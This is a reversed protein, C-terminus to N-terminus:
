IIGHELAFRVMEVSSSIGLKNFINTKHSNVARLSIHFEEAIEKGLKGACCAEIIQVERKTLMAYTRKNMKADVIDRILVAMDRGYFPVGEMVSNIALPVEELPANKSIYGDIGINMLQMIPYERTEVSLVIIKIDPYETRLRKAVDVGSTGPLLIDLLLLDCPKGDTLADFLRDASAVSITLEHPLPALASAIGIRILEHDDLIGRNM